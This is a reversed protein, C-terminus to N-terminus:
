PRDSYRAPSSASRPPLIAARIRRSVSGSIVRMWHRVPLDSTHLIHTAQSPVRWDISGSM